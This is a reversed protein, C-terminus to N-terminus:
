HQGLNVTSVIAVQHQIDTIIFLLTTSSTTVTIKISKWPQSCLFSVFWHFYISCLGIFTYLHARLFIIMKLLFGKGPQGCWGDGDACLEGGEESAPPMDSHFRSKQPTMKYESHMTKITVQQAFRWDAITSSYNKTKLAKAAQPAM